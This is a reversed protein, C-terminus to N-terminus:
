KSGSSAEKEMDYYGLNGDAQRRKCPCEDCINERNDNNVKSRSDPRRTFCVKFVLWYIIEFGSLLSFGTFLGLNGGIWSVKDSLSMRPVSTARTIKKQNAGM